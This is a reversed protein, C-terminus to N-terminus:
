GPNSLPTLGTGRWGGCELVERARPRNLNALGPRGNMKIWLRSPSRPASSSILASSARRNSASTESFSEPRVKSGTKPLGAHFGNEAPLELNVQVFLIIFLKTEDSSTAAGAKLLLRILQPPRKNVAWLIASLGFDSTAAGVRAPLVPWQGTGLPSGGSPVPFAHSHKGADRAM